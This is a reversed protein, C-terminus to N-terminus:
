SNLVEPVSGPSIFTAHSSVEIVSFAAAAFAVILISGIWTVLPRARFLRRFAAAMLLTVSYGTATLLATHLVYSWGFANAIGGLTRLLFYGGWGASQLV